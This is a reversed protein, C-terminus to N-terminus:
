MAKLLNMLMGVASSDLQSIYEVVEPKIDKEVAKALKRNKGLAVQLPSKTDNAEDDDDDEDEEEEKLVKAARQMDVNRQSSRLRGLDYPESPALM